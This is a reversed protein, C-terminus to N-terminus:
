TATPSTKPKTGPVLHHHDGLRSVPASPAIAPLRKRNVSAFPGGALCGNPYFTKAVGIKKSKTRDEYNHKLIDEIHEKSIFSKKEQSNRKSLSMAVRRGMIKNNKLNVRFPYGSVSSM